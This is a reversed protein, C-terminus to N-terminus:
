GNASLQEPTPAPDDGLVASANNADLYLEGGYHWDYFEGDVTIATSQTFSNMRRGPGRFRLIDGNDTTALGRKENYFDIGTVLGSASVDVNQWIAGGTETYLMTGDGGGVWGHRADLMAISYLEPTNAPVPQPQGVDEMGEIRFIVGSNAPCAENVLPGQCGVKWAVDMGGDHDVDLASVGLFYVDDQLGSYDMFRKWTTGANTTYRHGQKRQATLGDYLSAMSIEVNATNGQVVSKKWTVGGNSTHYMNPRTAVHGHQADVMEIDYVWPWNNSVENPQFEWSQGGDHTVFVFGPNRSVQGSIWCDDVTPCSIATIDAANPYQSKFHQWTWTDGGDTTKGIAGGFGVVYGVDSTPFATEQLDPHAGFDGAVPKFDIGDDNKTIFWARASGDKLSGAAWVDDAGQSLVATVDRTDQPLPASAQWTQGDASTGIVGRAGGFVGLGEGFHISFIDVSTDSDIDQWTQGGDNTMRIYGAQGAIWGTDASTFALANISAWGPFTNSQAAWTAGGDSTKLLLGKDGAAYGTNADVFQVAHLANTTNSTQLSWTQGGDASHIIVGGAGVAWASGDALLSAAELDASTPTNIPTWSAGVNSSRYVAGGEGVAILLGNSASVGYLNSNGPLLDQHWSYGNDETKLIAGGAGVAFCTDSTACDLDFLEGSGRWIHDWQGPIEAIASPTQEPAPAAQTAPILLLALFLLLPTLLLLRKKM